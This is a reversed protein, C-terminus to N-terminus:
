YTYQIDLYNQKNTYFYKAYKFSLNQSYLNM